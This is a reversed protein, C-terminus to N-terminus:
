AMFHLLQKVMNASGIYFPICQHLTGPELCLVAQTGDSALGGAQEAIFALANCEFMLRLKGAPKQQTPPYLYIGGQLLHRHFDAVLAGSYRSGLGQERAHSIYQQIAKPFQNFYGDNVAYSPGEKPFQIAPNTLLFAEVTPEYTFSHVGYKTGYVLMTATSYLIYGAAIQKHGTQLADITQIPNGLPSIRQYISFITGFPANVSLNATGDLPDLAVIYNGMKSDLEVLDVAEESIIGGVQETSALAEVFGIHAVTDLQQQKDGSANYTVEAAMVRSATGKNITELLGQSALSITQIIQYVAFPISPYRMAEDKTFAKLSPTFPPIHSSEFSM